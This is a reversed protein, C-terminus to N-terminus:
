NVCCRGSNSNHASNLNQWQPVSWYIRLAVVFLSWSYLRSWLRLLKAAKNRNIYLHFLFLRTEDRWNHSWNSFENDTTASTTHIVLVAGCAERFNAPLIMLPCHIKLHLSCLWSALLYLIQACPDAFSPADHCRWRSSYSWDIYVILWGFPFYLCM